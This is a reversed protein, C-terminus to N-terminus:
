GGEIHWAGTAGSVGYGEIELNRRIVDSVGNIEPPDPLSVALTARKEAWV